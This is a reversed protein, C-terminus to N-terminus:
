LLGQKHAESVAESRNHANLRGMLQQVGRKVTAESIFLKAAMERTSAGSAILRLLSRERPALSSKLVSAERALTAYETFLERSLTAALTSRGEHVTRIGQCLEARTVDKLLYGTAGAQIAEALYETHMTLILVKCSPDAQTLRRTTELGDVGPMRIDLLVVDPAHAEVAAMAETFSAAEAVVDIEEESELMRRLGERVVQHDDVLLVRIQSM